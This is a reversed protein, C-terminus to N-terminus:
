IEHLLNSVILDIDGYCGRWIILSISLHFFDADDVIGEAIGKGPIDVFFILDLHQVLQKANGLRSSVTKVDVLHLVNLLLANM